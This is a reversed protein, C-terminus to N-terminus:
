YSPIEQLQAFILPINRRLRQIYFLNFSFADTHLM